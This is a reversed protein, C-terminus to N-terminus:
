RRVLEHWLLGGVAGFGVQARGADGDYVAVWEFPSATVAEGWTEPTWYTMEHLQEHVEGARPGSLVGFRSRHVETGRAVDRTEVAWSAHIRVGDREVEWASAEGLPAGLALQVLYRAGRPLARGMAELHAGLQDRSLHGLTNISCVAGDFSGLDFDTMDAVVATGRERAREVMAPSNDIGAVELGVAALPGFMRGSGCGPELVRRCGPGLREAIWEAEDAIDWEFVADYVDPLDRYLDSM